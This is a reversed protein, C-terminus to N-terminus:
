VGERLIRASLTSGIGITVVPDEVMNTTDGGQSPQVVARFKLETESGSIPYHASLKFHRMFGPGARDPLGAYPSAGYTAYFNGPLSGVGSGHVTTARIRETIVLSGLRWRLGIDLWSSGDWRQIALEATYDELLTAGGRQALHMVVDDLYHNIHGFGTFEVEVFDGDHTESLVSTFDIEGSEAPLAPSRITDQTTGQFDRAGTMVVFIPKTMQWCNDFQAAAAHGLKFSTHNMGERRLQETDITTVSGQLETAITDLKAKTINSKDNIRSM